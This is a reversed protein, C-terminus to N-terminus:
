SVLGIKKLPLTEHFNLYRYNEQLQQFNASLENAYLDEKTLANLFTNSPNRLIARAVKAFVDGICAWSSGRHPTGFFAIGFTASCISNYKQGLKAQVLGQYWNVYSDSLRIRNIVICVEKVVIGGLSHAIFLIPRDDCDERQREVWIKDLLNRAQERVGASSSQIGINSNYGFLLIRARPLQKPLFDRM